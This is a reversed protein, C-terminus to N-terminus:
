ALNIMIVNGLTTSDQLAPCIVRVAVLMQQARKKGDVVREEKEDRRTVKDAGYCVEM